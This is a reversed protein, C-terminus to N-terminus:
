LKAIEYLQELEPMTSFLDNEVANKLCDTNRKLYDGANICQIPKDANRVDKKLFTFSHKPLQMDLIDTNHTTFFLQKRGTLKEIMISLCAKEVDSNVYSFLEDCYYLKHIDCVLAAIIFSIDLGAKTGSSLIETDLIKGDQIIVSRNEIKIAYTNEIEEMKVVKEIAPDLTQLIQELISLYKPDDEISHYKKNKYMDAPYSFSWGETDIEDIEVDRGEGNEIRKVCSKYSDRIGIDTALIYMDVDNASKDDKAVSISIYFRYLINEDTVFDVTLSAPKSRDNIVNTFMKINENDFYNAFLMLMKGLSTKGTANAGM